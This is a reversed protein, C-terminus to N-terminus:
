GTRVMSYAHPVNGLSHTRMDGHVHRADDVICEIFLRGDGFDVTLTFGGPAFTGSVFGVDHRDTYRGTISNGNQELALEFPANPYTSSTGFWTGTLNSATLASTSAVPGPETISGGRCGSLALLATLGLMLTRKM